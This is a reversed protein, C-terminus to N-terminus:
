QFSAAMRNSPAATQFKVTINRLTHFAKRGCTYAVNGDVVVIKRHDRYIHILSLLSTADCISSPLLQEVFETLWHWITSIPWHRRLVMPRDRICMKFSNPLGQEICGRLKPTAHPKGEKGFGGRSPLM